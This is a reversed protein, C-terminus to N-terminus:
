ICPGNHSTDANANKHTCMYNDSFDCIATVPFLQVVKNPCGLRPSVLGLRAEYAINLEPYRM